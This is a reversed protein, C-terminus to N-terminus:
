DKASGDLEAIIALAYDIARVLSSVAISEKPTHNDEVGIAVNITPIGRDNFINTDSGGGTTILKSELDLKTAAAIAAKVIPRDEDLDFSSFLRNSEIDIEAGFQQASKELIDIMHELQRDLKAEDRSRAEGKLEVRDPVINTAQGGNIVGINATTEEDIRGLNMNSLAVSAVKIANIGKQPEKGAHARKGRVLARIKDQAPGSTVISGIEGGTDFVLGMEAELQDFDLNKAGLLGKEECVTFVVEIDGYELDGEILNELLTLIITIGAKDDAGLVTQGQSFIVGDKILPKVNKGPVVTDMHAVLCITPRNPNSGPLKAILNGTYSGIRAGTDDEVVELGLEELKQKLDNALQREFRSESDTQVLEMFRDVIKKQELM